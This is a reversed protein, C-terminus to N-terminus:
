SGTPSVQASIEDTLAQTELVLSNRKQVLANYNDVLSTLVGVGDDYVKVAQNYGAVGANYGTVNGSARRSDLAAKQATLAQQQRQLEAKQANIQQKWVKLQADDRKIESVRNTFAAQYADYYATVRTRDTFYRRYYNELAPPLTTVETGFLSHMENVVDHPETQRYAALQSKIVPDKLGHQYYDLLWANVQSKQRGSLRDYAAHLLEHASTVQEVGSLRPDSVQLVFIGDQRPKYCGLVVTQETGSPCQPAFAAKTSVAPKNVYFIRRAAATMTDDSAIASVTVPAHYSRLTWWDRLGQANYAGVGLVIVWFLIALTWFRRRKTRRLSNKITEM